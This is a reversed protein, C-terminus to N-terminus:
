EIKIWGWGILQSSQGVFQNEVLWWQCYNILNSCLFSTVPIIFKPMDTFSAVESELPVLLRVWGFNMEGFLSLPMEGLIPLSLSVGYRKTRAILAYIVKVKLCAGKAYRSSKLGSDPLRISSYIPVIRCRIRDWKGSTSAHSRWWLWVMLEDSILQGFSQKTSEALKIFRIHTEPLQICETRFTRLQPMSMCAWMLECGEQSRDWWGSQEFPDKPCNSEGVIRNRFHYVIWKAPLVQNLM